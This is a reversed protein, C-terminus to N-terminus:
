QRGQHLISAQATASPAHLPLRMFFRMKTGSRGSDVSEAM